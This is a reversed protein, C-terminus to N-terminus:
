PPQSAASGGEQGQSQSDSPKQTSALVQSVNDDSLLSASAEAAGSPVDAFLAELNARAGYHKLVRWQKIKPLDRNRTVQYRLVNEDTALNHNVDALVEPASHFRLQWILAQLYDTLYYAM